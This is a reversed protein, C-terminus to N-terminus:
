ERFGFALDRQWSSRAPAPACCDAPLAPGRLPSEPAPRSETEAVRSAKTRNVLGWVTRPVAILTVETDSRAALFVASKLRERREASAVARHAARLALTEM